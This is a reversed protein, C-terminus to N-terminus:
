KGDGVVKLTGRKMDLKDEIESITLETKEQRKWIVKDEQFTLTSMNIDSSGHVSIIDYGSDVSGNRKLNDNYNHGCIFGGDEVLCFEQNGYKKTKVDRLVMWKDGNRTKVWMGTRLDSKRM